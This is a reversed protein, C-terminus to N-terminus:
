DGLKAIAVFVPLVDDKAAATKPVNSEPHAPNQLANHNYEYSDLEDHTIRFAALM